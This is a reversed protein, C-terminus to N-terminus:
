RRSAEPYRRSLAKLEAESWRVNRVFTLLVLAHWTQRKLLYLKGGILLSKQSRIDCNISDGHAAGVGEYTARGPFVPVFPLVTMFMVVLLWYM